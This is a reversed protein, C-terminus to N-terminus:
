ISDSVETLIRNRLHCLDIKNNTDAVAQDHILIGKESFPSIKTPSDSLGNDLFIQKLCCLSDQPPYYTPSILQM